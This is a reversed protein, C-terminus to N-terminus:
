AAGGKLYHQKTWTRGEKIDRIDVDPTLTTLARTVRDGSLRTAARLEGSKIGPQRAIAKRVSEVDRRVENDRADQVRRERQEAVLEAGRVEVQLGARDIGDVEVDSIVLAFDEALEGHTRAKVNSVLVPEGKSASFLYVSDGADYIASSGRIAYRGGPDDDSPKRAHLIVMSRCGTADSLSGLMDLGARIDSSNEDQGGTAARLSDVIVLDRETMLARWSEMHAPALALPPMVSLALSSGMAALDVGMAAALRQYRRRTLRDGQELDVHLVRRVDRCTYAGWIPKAAALALALAQLALTKGAFGYGAVLHPAGGGAVLGIERVLYALEPLPAAIAPGTLVTALVADAGAQREAAKHVSYPTGNLAPEEAPRVPAPADNAPKAPLASYPDIPPKGSPTYSATM